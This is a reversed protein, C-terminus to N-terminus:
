PTREHAERLVAAFEDIVGEFLREGKEATALAPDGIAGSESHEDFSRYVSLPGGTLLDTRTRDYPEDLYEADRSKRRIEFDPRLFGLRETPAIAAAPLGFVLYLDM